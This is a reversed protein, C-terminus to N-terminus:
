FAEEELIAMEEEERREAERVAEVADRFCKQGAELAREGEEEAEPSTSMDLEEDDGDYAVPEVWRQKVAFLGEGDDLVDRGVMLVRDLIGGAVRELARPEEELPAVERVAMEEAGGDMLDAEAYDEACLEYGHCEAMKEFMARMCVAAVGEGFAGKGGDGEYERAALGARERLRGAERALRHNATHLAATIQHNLDAQRAQRALTTACAAHAHETARARDLRTTLAAITATRNTLQAKMDDYVTKWATPASTTLAATLADQLKLLQIELDHALAAQPKLIKLEDNAAALDATAAGSTIQADQLEADLDHLQDAQTVTKERLTNITDRDSTAAAVLRRNEAVLTRGAVINHNCANMFDAMWDALQTIVEDNTMEALTAVNTIGTAQLDELLPLTQDFVDNAFSEIEDNSTKLDQIEAKLRLNENHTRIRDNEIPTKEDLLRRVHAAQKNNNAEVNKIYMSDLAVDRLKRQAEDREKNAVELEEELIERYEETETLLDRIEQLAKENHEAKENVSTLETLMSEQKKAHEASAQELQSKLDQIIVEKEALIRSSADTIHQVNATNAVRLAGIEKRLSSAIVKDQEKLRQSSASLSDYAADKSKRLAKLDEKLSSNKSNADSLEKFTSDHIERLSQVEKQCSAVVENKEELASTHEASLESLRASCAERLAQIEQKHTVSASIREAELHEISDQLSLVTSTHNDEVSSLTSVHEAKLSFLAATHDQELTALASQHQKLVTSVTSKYDQRISALSSKHQERLTAVATSQKLRLSSVVSDHKKKLSAISHEKEENLSAITAKAEEEVGEIIGSIENVFRNYDNELASLKEKHTSNSVGHKHGNRYIVGDIERWLSKSASITDSDLEIAALWDPFSPTTDVLTSATSDFSTSSSTRSHRAAKSASKVRDVLKGSTGSSLTYDSPLEKFGNLSLSRLVTSATRSERHKGIEITPVPM